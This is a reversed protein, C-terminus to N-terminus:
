DLLRQPLRARVRDGEEDPIGHARLLEPAREPSPITHTYADVDRAADYLEFV